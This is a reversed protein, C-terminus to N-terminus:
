QRQQMRNLITKSIYRGTGNSGYRVHDLGLKQATLYMESGGNITIPDRESPHDTMYLEMVNRRLKKTAEGQTSVQMGAEVPTTCAAPFGRRGKIEVLCIRCSGFSELKDTACLRPIDIELEAAARMVSTGTPVTVKEGDISLTVQRSESSMPTGFDKEKGALVSSVDSSTLVDDDVQPDFIELM